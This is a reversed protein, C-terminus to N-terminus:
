ILINWIYFVVFSVCDSRGMFNFSIGLIRNLYRFVSCSGGLCHVFEVVQMCQTYDFVMRYVDLEGLGVLDGLICIDDFM